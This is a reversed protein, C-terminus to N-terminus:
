AILGAKALLPGHEKVIATVRAEAQPIFMARAATLIEDKHAALFKIELVKKLDHLLCLEPDFRRTSSYGDHIGTEGICEEVMAAQYNEPAIMAQIENELKAVSAKARAVDDVACAYRYSIDAVQRAADERATVEAKIKEAAKAAECTIKFVISNARNHVEMPDLNPAQKPSM